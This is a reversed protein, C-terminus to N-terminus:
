YGPNQTINPNGVLEYGPIPYLVDFAQWGPKSQLVTNAQGTRKLDLWRHGWETFLEVRREAQIAAILGDVTNVTSLPLAARTRVVNLDALAGALNGQRARAEARLLYQEALRLVMEYERHDPQYSGRTYKYPYTYARPGITVSATWHIRRQDNAEFSALLGPTLLYQPLAFPGFSVPLFFQADATALTDYVPQLQWIAERSGATFVSDLNAELRYRGDGIVATAAQEASAWSQRYCYVRALLATAATQVPRIRDGAYGAATVHDAPLSQRAFQLDSITQAYVSDTSARPLRANVTYDIGTVRPVDGYLSVLYLYLLARLFKAEGQLQTKLAASVGKGQDLGNLVSNATYILSYGSSFLSASLTNSATLQNVYFSDEPARPNFCSLEDASLGAYLSISGNLIGQPNDMAQNYFGIIATKATADDTYVATADIDTSPAPADLLKRCSLLCLLAPVLLFFNRRRILQNMAHM